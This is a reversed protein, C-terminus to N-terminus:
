WLVEAFQERRGPLPGRTLDTRDHGLGARGLRRPRATRRSSLPSGTFEWWEGEDTRWVPENAGIDIHFPYEEGHLHLIVNVGEVGALSGGMRTPRHRSNRPQRYVVVGRGVQTRLFEASYAAM